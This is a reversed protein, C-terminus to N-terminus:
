ATRTGCAKWRIPQPPQWRLGQVPPKAFPVGLWAKVGSPLLKGAVLGESTAIPSVPNEVIQARLPTAPSLFLSM